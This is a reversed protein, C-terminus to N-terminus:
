EFAETHPLGRRWDFRAADTPSIGEDCISVRFGFREGAGSPLWPGRIRGRPCLLEECADDVSSQVVPSMDRERRRARRGRGRRSQSQCLLVQRRRHRQRGPSSCTRSQTAM